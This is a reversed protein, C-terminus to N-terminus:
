KQLNVLNDLGKIETIKEIKRRSLNIINDNYQKKHTINNIDIYTITIM